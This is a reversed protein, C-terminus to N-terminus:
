FLDVEGPDLSHQQVIPQVKTLEDRGGRLLRVLEDLSSGSPCAPRGEGDTLPAAISDTLAHLGRLRLDVEHLLQSALDDFQLGETALSGTTSLMQFLGTLEGHLEAPMTTEHCTLIEQLSLTASRLQTFAQVLRGAAESTIRNARVLGDQAAYFERELTMRVEHKVDRVRNAGDSSAAVSCTGNLTHM